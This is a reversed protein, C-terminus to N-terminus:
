TVTAGTNEASITDNLAAHRREAKDQRMVGLIFGSVISKMFVKKTVPNAILPRDSETQGSGPVWSPDPITAPRNYIRAFSDKPDDFKTDDWTVTVAVNDTQQAM